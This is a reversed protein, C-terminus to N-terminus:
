IQSGYLEGVIYKDYYHMIYCLIVSFIIITLIENSFFNMIDAKSDTPTKEQFSLRFFFDM